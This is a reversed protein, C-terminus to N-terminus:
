VQFVEETFFVPMSLTITLISYLHKPFVQDSVRYNSERLIKGSDDILEVNGYALASGPNDLLTQSLELLAGPLYLNDASTWTLFPASAKSFGLNLASAIGSNAQQYFSVRKDGLYVKVASELKDNSGDDVIILELPVTQSLVSDISKSILSAHNYVPLVVSVLPM